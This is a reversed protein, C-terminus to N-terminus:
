TQHKIFWNTGDSIISVSEYQTTLTLSAAGEITRGTPTIVVTNASADIKKIVYENGVYDSSSTPIDIDIQNLTCDCLNTTDTTVLTDSAATITQINTFVAQSFTRAFSTTTSGINYSATASPLLSQYITANSSGFYMKFSNNRIIGVDRAVGTGTTQTGFRLVNTTFDFGGYETDVDGAEGLNYMKYSQAGSNDPYHNVNGGTRLPQFTDTADEVQFINPGSVGSDVGKLTFVTAEKQMRYLRSTLGDAARAFQFSSEFTVPTSIKTQNGNGYYWNVGSDAGVNIGRSFTASWGTTASNTITGAFDGAYSYVNTFRQGTKGVSADNDLLPRITRGSYLRIDGASMDAVTIGAAIYRIGSGEFDLRREVGAGTTQSKFKCNGGQWSIDLYETDVDGSTGLNYIRPSGGVETILNGSFSGDVSYTNIFRALSLGMSKTTGKPVLANSRFSYQEVGSFAISLLDNADTNNIAGEIVVDNSFDGDVSYTNAWRLADTGSSYLNTTAPRIENYLQTFTGGIIIADSGNRQLTLNGGDSTLTNATLTGTFTPNDLPPSDTIGYGAITTPTGTLSSFAGDFSSGTVKWVTGTWQYTKGLVSVTDGVTPNNPFFSM